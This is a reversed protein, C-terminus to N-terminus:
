VLCLAQNWWPGADWAEGGQPQPIDGRRHGAWVPFQAGLGWGWGPLGRLLGRCVWPEHVAALATGKRGQGEQRGDM